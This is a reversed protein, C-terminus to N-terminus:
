SGPGLLLWYAAVMAGAIFLVGILTALPTSSKSRGLAEKARDPRNLKSGYLSALEAYIARTETSSLSDIRVMEELRAALETWDETRRLIDCLRRMAELHLPGGVNRYYDTARTLDARVHLFHDGLALNLQHDATKAVADIVSDIATEFTPKDAVPLAELRTEMARLVEHEHVCALALRGLEAALSLDRWDAELARILLALAAAPQALRHETILAADRYARRETHLAVVRPWQELASLTDILKAFAQEHLPALGLIEDYCDVARGLDQVRNAYLEALEFLINIKLDPERTLKATRAVVQALETWREADGFLKYLSALARPNDPHAEAINHWITIAEDTEGTRQLAEALEMRYALADDISLSPIALLQRLVGILEPDRHLKSALGCIADLVSRDVQCTGHAELYIDLARTDDELRDAAIRAAESFLALQDASRARAYTLLAEVADRWNRGERHLRIINEHADSHDPDEVLIRMWSAVAAEPDTLRECVHALLACTAIRKIPQTQIRLWRELLERLLTVENRERHIRELAVFAAENTRDVELVRYFTATANDVDDLREAYLAALRSLLSTQEEPGALSVRHEIVPLLDPWREQSTYITDLRQWWAAREADINLLLLTATEARELMDLRDACMSAIRDLLAVRTDDDLDDRLAAECAALADTWAGSHEALEDFLQIVDGDAPTAVLAKGALALADGLADLQRTLKSAELYAAARESLIALTPAKMSLLWSLKAPNHGRRYREELQPAITGAMHGADVIREFGSIATDRHSYNDHVESFCAYAQEPSALRELYIDGLQMLADLRQNGALDDLRTAMLEALQPWAQKARYMAELMAVAKRREDESLELEHTAGDSTQISLLNRWSKKYVSPLPEPPLRLMEFPGLSGARTLVMVADEHGVFHTEGYSGGLGSKLTLLATCDDPRIGDPLHPQIAPSLM